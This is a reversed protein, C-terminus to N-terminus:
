KGKKLHFSKKLLSNIQQHVHKRFVDYHFELYAENSEYFNRMTMTENVKKEIDIKLLKAAESTDWYKHGRSTVETRPFRIQDSIIARHDYSAWREKQRLAAILNKLNTRFNEKPYKQYEPDSDYVEAYSTSENIEGDMILITLFEKAKSKAWPPLEIPKEVVKKSSKATQPISHNVKTMKAKEQKFKTNNTKTNHM